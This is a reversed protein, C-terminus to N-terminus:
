RITALPSPGVEGSPGAWSRGQPLGRVADHDHLRGPMGKPHPGPVFASEIPCHGCPNFSIILTRETIPVRGSAILIPGTMRAKPLLGLMKIRLDAHRALVPLHQVLHEVQEPDDGVMVEGEHGRPLRKGVEGRRHEFPHVPDELDLLGVPDQNLPIGGRDHGRGQGCGVALDLDPMDLGAQPSVVLVVREGLLDVAAHGRDHGVEVERRRFPRRLVEAAFPNSRLCNTDGAIRDDVRDLPDGRDGRLGRGGPGLLEFLQCLLFRITRTM